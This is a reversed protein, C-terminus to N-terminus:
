LSIKKMKRMKLVLVLKLKDLFRRKSAIVGCGRGIQFTHELACIGDTFAQWSMTFGLLAFNVMDRDPVTEGVGDLEEKVKSFRTLYSVMSDLKTMKISRLRGKLVLKRAESSCQYLGIVADWMKNSKKKGILHPIIHDKVGEM